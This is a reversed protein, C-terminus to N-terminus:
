WSLSTATRVLQQLLGVAESSVTGKVYGAITGDPRLLVVTPRTDVPIGSQRAFGAADEVFLVAARHASVAGELEKATGRRIFGRVFRPPSEIVSFHFVEIRSPIVGPQILERHWAVLQDLQWQGNKRSTSMALTFVVPQGELADGPFSFADGGFTETQVAPFEAAFMSFSFVLLLLVVSVLKRSM